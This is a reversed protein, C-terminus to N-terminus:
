EGKQNELVFSKALQLVSNYDDKSAVSVMSHIYRCPTSIAVVKAGAKTKHIAGADNGGLSSQRFQYPINNEEAIKALQRVKDIDYITSSDMISIVAGKGIITTKEADSVEPMDACVTGELVIVLDPELAYAATQAGRLGVEEMVTFVAYFDADLKMALIELLISCGTRDDLAKAKIMNNGYEVYDSKFTVYDGISVLKETEGKNKSGIDIYLKDIPISKGREEASMLHVAKSGIIGPIKNDGVLVVKSNLTRQDIGGVTQFYIFGDSDVRSVILGVEDMHAALMININKKGINHAIVNGLKDIYYECGINTLQQKIYNRVEYECGSVGSLRTLEELFM